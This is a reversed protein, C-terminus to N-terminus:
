NLAQAPHFQWTITVTAKRNATGTVDAQLAKRGEFVPAAANGQYGGHVNLATSWTAEVTPRDGLLPVEEHQSAEHAEGGDSCTRKVNFRDDIPLQLTYTSHNADITLMAPAPELPREPKAELTREVREICRADVRGGTESVVGLTDDRQDIRVKGARAEVTWTQANPAGGPNSGAASAMAGIQQMMQQMRPDQMQQMAVATECDADGNCAATQKRWYDEDEASDTTDATEAPLQGDVVAPDAVMTLHYSATNAVRWERSKVGAGPSAQASGSGTVDVEVDLVGRAGAPAFDAASAPACWPMAGALIVVACLRASM